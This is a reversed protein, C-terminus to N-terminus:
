PSLAQVPTEPNVMALSVLNELTQFQEDSLKSLDLETLPIAGGNPGTDKALAKDSSVSPRDSEPQFVHEVMALDMSHCYNDHANKRAETYHAAFNKDKRNREDVTKKSVRAQECAYRFNGCSDELAMLFSEIWDDSPPSLNSPRDRAPIPETPNNTDSM